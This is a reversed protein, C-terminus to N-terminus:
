ITPLTIDCKKNKQYDIQSYNELAFFFLIAGREDSRSIM